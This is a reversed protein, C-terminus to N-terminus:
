TKRGGVRQSILENIQDQCQARDSDLPHKVVLAIIERLLPEDVPSKSKKNLRALVQLMDDIPMSVGGM